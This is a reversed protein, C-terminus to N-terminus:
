SIGHQRHLRIQKRIDARMRVLDIQNWEGEFRMLAALAVRYISDAIDSGEGKDDSDHLIRARSKRLHTMTDTM